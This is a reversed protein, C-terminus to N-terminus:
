PQQLAKGFSSFLSASNSLLAAVYPVVKRDYERNLFLTLDDVPVLGVAQSEWGALVPSGTIRLALYFRTETQIGSLNGPRFPDPQKMPALRGPKGSNRGSGTRKGSLKEACVGNAGTQCGLQLLGRGTGDESM